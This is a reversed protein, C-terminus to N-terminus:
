RDRSIKIGFQKIFTLLHWVAIDYPKHATKCFNFALNEGEYDAVTRVNKSLIFTEHEMENVGNFVIEDDSETQDIITSNCVQKIYDYEDKIQKWENDSFSKEQEWYNTYGM